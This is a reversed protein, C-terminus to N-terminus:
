SESMLFSPNPAM